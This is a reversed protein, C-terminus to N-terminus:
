LYPWSLLLFFASRTPHLAWTCIKWLANKERPFSNLLTCLAFFMCLAFLVVFHLGGLVRIFWCYVCFQNFSAYSSMLVATLKRKPRAEGSMSLFTFYSPFYPLHCVVGWSPYKILMLSFSSSNTKSWTTRLWLEASVIDSGSDLDILLEGKDGLLSTKLEFSSCM